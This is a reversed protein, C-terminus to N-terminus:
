RSAHYRQFYPRYGERQYPPEPLFTDSEYHYPVSLPYPLTKMSSYRYPTYTRSRYLLPETIRVKTDGNRHWPHPDRLDGTSALRRNSRRYWPPPDRLNGTSARHPGRALSRAPHHTLNSKIPINRPQNAPRRSGVNGKGSKSRARRPQSRSRSRRRRRPRCCALCGFFVSSGKRSSSKSRRTAM